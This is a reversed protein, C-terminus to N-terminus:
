TTSSPDFHEVAIVVFNHAKSGRGNATETKRMARQQSAPAMESPHRVSSTVQKARREGFMAVMCVCLNYLVPLVRVTFTDAPLVVGLVVVYIRTCLGRVGYRKDEGYKEIGVLAGRLVSCKSTPEQHDHHSSFPTCSPVLLFVTPSTSRCLLLQLIVPSIPLVYSYM